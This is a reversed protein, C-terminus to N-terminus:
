NGKASMWQPAPIDPESPREEVKGSVSLIHNYILEAPLINPFQLCDNGEMELEAISKLSQFGTM